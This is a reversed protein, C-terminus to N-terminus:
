KFSLLVLMTSVVLLAVIIAWALPTLKKSSLMFNREDGYVSMIEEDSYMNKIFKSEKVHKATGTDISVDLEEEVVEADDAVIEEEVVEQKLGFAEYFDARSKSCRRDYGGKIAQNFYKEEYPTDKFAIALEYICEIFIREEGDPFFITTLEHESMTLYEDFVDDLFTWKTHAPHYSTRALYEARKSAAMGALQRIQWKEM